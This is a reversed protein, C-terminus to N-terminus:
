CDDEDPFPMEQLLERVNEILMSQDEICMMIHEYEMEALRYFVQEALDKFVPLNADWALEMEAYIIPMFHYRLFGSYEEDSLDAAFIFAPKEQLDSEIADNVDLIEAETLPEQKVLVPFEEAKPAPAKAAPQSVAPETMPLRVDNTNIKGLGNLIFNIRKPHEAHLQKM